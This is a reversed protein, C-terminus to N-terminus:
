LQTPFHTLIPLSNVFIQKEDDSVTLMILDTSPHDWLNNTNYWTLDKSVAGLNFTFEGLGQDETM